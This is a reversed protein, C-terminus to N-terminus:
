VPRDATWVDRAAPDSSRRGVLTLPLRISGVDESGEVARMVAEGAQKGLETKPVHITTVSPTTLASADIDDFGILAADEPIRLGHREMAKMAGIASLDNAAFLGDFRRGDRLLEEAAAYGGELTFGGDGVRNEDFPVGAEALGERFGEYRDRSWPAARLGYIHAPRKVGKAALHEAALRGGLRNDAWVSTLGFPTLDRELAIVPVKKKGHTLGTLSRLFDEKESVSDLIIGDARGALLTRIYKEEVAENFGTSYFNIIYGNEGLVRSLGRIVAPFFASDISPVILGIVHSHNTKLSSAAPDPSYGLRAAAEDIKRRTEDSVKNKGTLANSVSAISVGAERAVDWITAKM